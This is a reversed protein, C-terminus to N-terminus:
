CTSTRWIVVIAFLNKMLEKNEAGRIRGPDSVNEERSGKWKQRDISACQVGARDTFRQSNTYKQGKASQLLRAGQAFAGFVALRLHAIFWLSVGGAGYECAEYNFVYQGPSLHWAARSHLAALPVCGSLLKIPTLLSDATPRSIITQWSKFKLDRFVPLLLALSSLLLRDLCTKAKRNNISSLSNFYHTGWCEPLM